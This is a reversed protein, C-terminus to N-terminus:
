KVPVEFFEFIKSKKELIKKVRETVYITPIMEKIKFIEDDIGALKKKDIVIDWWSKFEYPKGKGMVLYKSLNKDIIGTLIKQPYFFSYEHTEKQTKQDILTVAKFAFGKIQSLEKKTHENCLYFSPFVILIDEDLKGSYTFNINGLNDIQNNFVSKSFELDKEKKLLPFEYNRSEGNLTTTYVKIM